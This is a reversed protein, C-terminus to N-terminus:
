MSGVPLSAKLRLGTPSGVVYRTSACPRSIPRSAPGASHSLSAALAKIELAILYACFRLAIGGPAGRLRLRARAKNCQSADYDFDIGTQKLVILLLDPDELPNALSSLEHAVLM